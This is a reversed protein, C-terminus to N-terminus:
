RQKARCAICRREVWVMGDRCRLRLAVDNGAYAHGAPCHTKAANHDSGGRRWAARERMMKIRRNEAAYNLM